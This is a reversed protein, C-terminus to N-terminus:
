RGERRALITEIEDMIGNEVAFSIVIMVAGMVWLSMGRM